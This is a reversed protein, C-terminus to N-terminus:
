TVVSLWLWPMSNIVHFTCIFDGLPQHPRNSSHVALCVSVSTVFAGELQWVHTDLFHCKCTILISFYTVECGGGLAYGNVAAM